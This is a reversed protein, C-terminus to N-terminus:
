TTVEPLTQDKYLKVRGEAVGIALAALGRATIGNADVLERRHLADIVRERNRWAINPPTATTRVYEDFDTADGNHEYDRLMELQRLTLPKPM